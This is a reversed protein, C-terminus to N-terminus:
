RPAANNRTGGAALRATITALEEVLGCVEAMRELARADSGGDNALRQYLFRLSGAREKAGKALTEDHLEAM